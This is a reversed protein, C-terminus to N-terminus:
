YVTSVVKPIESVYYLGDQQMELPCMSPWKPMSKHTCMIHCIQMINFLINSVTDDNMLKILPSNPISHLNILFFYFLMILLM